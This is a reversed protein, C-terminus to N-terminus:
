ETAGKPAHANVWDNLKGAQEIDDFGGISEWLLEWPVSEWQARLADNARKYHAAVAEAAEAREVAERREKDIAFLAQLMSTGPKELIKDLGDSM